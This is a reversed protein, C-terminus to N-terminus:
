SHTVGRLGLRHAPDAGAFADVVYLDRDELYAVVKERLGEFQTEELDQNVKSWWIRHESGSERVVFKDNPSRGTHAGTDVVLAGGEALRGDRRDLTDSYLLATTPRHHVHGRPSMGHESLDVQQGVDEIIAMQEGEAEALFNGCMVPSSVAAYRIVIAIRGGVGSSVSPTTVSRVHPRLPSTSASVAAQLSGAIASNRSRIGDGYVSSSARLYM